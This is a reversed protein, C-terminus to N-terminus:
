VSLIAHVSSRRLDLAFAPLGLEHFLAEYSGELAPRVRKREAAGNWDSAAAVIGTYTTM